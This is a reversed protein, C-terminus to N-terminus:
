QYIITHLNGSQKCIRKFKSRHSDVKWSKTVSMILDYTILRLHNNWRVSPNATEQEAFFFRIMSSSRSVFHLLASRLVTQLSRLSVLIQWGVLNWWGQFIVHNQELVQKLRTFGATGLAARLALFKWSVRATGATTRLGLDLISCTTFVHAKGIVFQFTQKRKFVYDLWLFFPIFIFMFIDIMLYIYIYIYIYIDYLYKSKVKETLKTM